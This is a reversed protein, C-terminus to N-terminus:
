VVYYNGPRSYRLDTLTATSNAWDGTGNRVWDPESVIPDEEIQFVKGCVPCKVEM